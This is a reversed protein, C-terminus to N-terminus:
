QTSTTLEDSSAQEAKKIKDKLRKNDPQLSLAKEWIKQAHEPHKAMYFTDGLLEYGPAFEPNLRLAERLTAVAKDGDRQAIYIRAKLLYTELNTPFEEQFKDTVKLAEEFKKQTMLSNIYYMFTMPTLPEASQIADDLVEEASDYKQYGMYLEALRLYPGELAPNIEIAREFDKIAKDLKKLGLHAIGRSNYIGAKLDYHSEKLARDFYEVAQEHEKRQLAFNGLEFLATANYPYAEIAKEFFEEALATNNMDYYLTGITVYNAAKTGAGLRAADQLVDRAERYNGEDILLKALNYHAWKHGPESEIANRFEKKANQRDGINYFAWGLSNHAAASNPHLSLESQWFSFATRWDATRDISRITYFVLVISFIILINLNRDTKFLSKDPKLFYGGVAALFFCFGVSPLFLAREATLTGIPVINVVPLLAVLVWLFGFAAINHKKIILWAVGILIAGFIVFSLGISVPFLAPIDKVDYIATLRFPFLLLQINLIYIAPVLVLRNIFAYDELVRHTTGPILTRLAIIRFILYLLIVSFLPLYFRTVTITLPIKKDQRPALIIEYLLVLLPFIIVNEYSGLSLLYSFLSIALFPTLTHGSKQVIGKRWLLYFYFSLLLFLTSLIASRAVTWNVSETHIPHAAFLLTSLFMLIDHKFLNRAVLWFIIITILYLLLNTIHFGSPNKGGWVFYDILFSLSLIPRYLGQEQSDPPYSSIFIQPLYKLSTIQYNDVIYPNDDYLFQNKFVPFYIVIALFLAVGPQWLSHKLNKQM